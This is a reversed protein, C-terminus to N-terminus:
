FSDEYKKVIIEILNDNEDFIWYSIVDVHFIYFFLSKYDGISVQIHSAGISKNYYISKRNSSNYGYNKIHQSVYIKRKCYELVKEKSSGISIEKLIKERIKGEDFRLYFSNYNSIVIISAFVIFIIGIKKM